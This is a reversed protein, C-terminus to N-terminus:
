HNGQVHAVHDLLAFDDEGGLVADDLDLGGVGVRWQGAGAVVHLAHDRLGEELSGAAGGSSVGSTALGSVSVVAALVGTTNSGRALSADDDATAMTAIAPWGIPTLVGTVSGCPTTEIFASPVSVNVGFWLKLPEIENV